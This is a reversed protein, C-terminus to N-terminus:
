AGRRHAVSRVQTNSAGPTHTKDLPLYVVHGHRVGREAIVHDALHQVDSGRGKLVTVEMCREQDLHVHLTAQALDHHDHFDRTLRKPLEREGHDYVYVLAAVCPHTGGVEMAAQQLGSRALDRIAESRNEYGRTNMFRDLEAYFDDDITITVRHM